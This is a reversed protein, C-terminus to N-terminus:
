QPGGFPETPRATAAVADKLRVEKSYNLMDRRHDFTAAAKGAGTELVTFGIRGVEENKPSVTEDIGATLCYPIWVQSNAAKQRRVLKPGFFLLEPPRPRNSRHGFAALAVDGTETATTASKGGEYLV